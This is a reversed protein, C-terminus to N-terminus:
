SRKVRATLEAALKAIQDRPLPTLYVGHLVLRSGSDARTALALANLKDPPFGQLPASDITIVAWLNGDASYEYREAAGIVRPHPALLATVEVPKSGVLSRLDDETYGSAISAINVRSEIIAM